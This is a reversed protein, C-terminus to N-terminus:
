DQPTLCQKEKNYWSGGVELNSKIKEFLISQTNPPYSHRWLYGISYATVFLGKLSRTRHIEVIGNEYSGM